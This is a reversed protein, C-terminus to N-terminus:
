FVHFKAWYEPGLLKDGSNIDMMVEDNWYDTWEEISDKDWGSRAGDTDYGRHKEGRSVELRKQTAERIKAVWWPKGTGNPGQVLQYHYKKWLVPLHLMRKDFGAVGDPIGPMLKDVDLGSDQTICKDLGALWERDTNRKRLALEMMQVEHIYAREAYTQPDFDINTRLM